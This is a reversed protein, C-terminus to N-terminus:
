YCVCRLVKTLDENGLAFEKRQKEETWSGKRKPPLFSGETMRGFSAQLSLKVELGRPEIRPHM